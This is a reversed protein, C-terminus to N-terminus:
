QVIEMECHIEMMTGDGASREAILRAVSVTFSETGWTFTFTEANPLEKCMNWLSQYDSFRLDKFTTDVTFIDHSRKFDKVKPISQRGINMVTRGDGKDLMRKVNAGPGFEITITGDSLKVEGAAM